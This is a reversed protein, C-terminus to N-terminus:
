GVQFLKTINTETLGKKNKELIASEKKFVELSLLNMSSHNGKETLNFKSNEQNLFGEALLLEIARDLTPDMRIEPKIGDKNLVWFAFDNSNKESKLLWNIVHLKKLSCSGTKSAVLTFIIIILSACWMPRMECPLHEPRRAFTFPRGIIDEIKINM